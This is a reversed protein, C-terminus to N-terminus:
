KCHKKVLDNSMQLEYRTIKGENFFKESLKLNKRRKACEPSEVKASSSTASSLQVKACVNCSGVSLFPKSRFKSPQVHKGNVVVTDHAVDDAYWTVQACQRTNTKIQIDSGAPKINAGCQQLLRSCDCGTSASASLSGAAIMFTAILITVPKM